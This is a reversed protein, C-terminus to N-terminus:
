GFRPTALRKTAIGARTLWGNEVPDAPTAASAGGSLASLATLICFLAIAIHKVVPIM